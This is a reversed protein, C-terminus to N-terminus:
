QNLQLAMNFIGGAVVPHRMTVRRISFAQLHPPHSPIDQIFLRPSGALPSGGAQLSLLLGVVGRRLVRSTQFM